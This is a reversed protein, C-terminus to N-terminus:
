LLVQLFSHFNTLGLYVPNHMPIQRSLTDTDALNRLLKIGFLAVNTQLCENCM